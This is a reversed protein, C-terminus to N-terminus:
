TLIRGEFMFPFYAFSSSYGASPGNVRVLPRMWETAAWGQLANIIKPILEGALIRIETTNQLQAKPTRVALVILWRQDIIRRAGNGAENGTVNDGGYIVHVAPSPQSAEVMDGVSFPSLVDKLEPVQARIRGIIAAEADFYNIILTNM